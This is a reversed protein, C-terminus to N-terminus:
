SHPVPVEYTETVESVVATTATVRTPGDHHAHEVMGLFRKMDPREGYSTAWLALFCLNFAASAVVALEVAGIGASLGIGIALLIFLLDGSSKLTNRYRAAGAIGALSFSLALSHQVIVVIGTVVLPLVVITDVVSQDYDQPSRVKMYIWSVPLATLIAGAVAGVLWVLSGGFSEPHSVRAALLKDPAGDAQSILSQVRGVPLYDHWQPFMQTVLLFAIALAAYYALLKGLIKM